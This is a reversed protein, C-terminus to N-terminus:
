WRVSSQFAIEPPGGVEGGRIGCGFMSAVIIVGGHM